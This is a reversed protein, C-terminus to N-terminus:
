WDDLSYFICLTAKGVLNVLGRMELHGATIGLRAVPIGFRSGEAAIRLDTAVALECGGGVAYGHIM